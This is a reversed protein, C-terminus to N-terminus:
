HQYTEWTIKWSNDDQKEWLAIWTGKNKITDKSSKNILMESVTNYHLAQNESPYITPNGQELIVVDYTDYMEKWEKRLSDAYMTIAKGQENILTFKDNYFDVWRIDSRKYYNYAAAVTNRVESKVMTESNTNTNTSIQSNCSLLIFPVIMILVTKTIPTNLYNFNM